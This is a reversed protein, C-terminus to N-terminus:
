KILEALPVNFYGAKIDLGSLYPTGQMEDLTQNCGVLPAASQDVRANVPGLNACLRYDQQSQGGKVLVVGVTFLPEEEGPEM